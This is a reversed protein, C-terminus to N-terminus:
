RADIRYDFRLGANPRFVAARVVKEICAGLPTNSVKGGVRVDTVRGTKGVTIKLEATGSDRLRKACGNARTKVTAMTKSIDSPSLPELAPPAPAERKVAPSPTSKQVNKLMDDISRSVGKKGKGKGDAAVDAMLNDLSGSSKSATSRSPAEPKALAVARAPSKAKRGSSSGSSSGSESEFPDAAVSPKRGPGTVPASKRAAAPRAASAPRAARPRAAHAPGAPEEPQPLERVEVHPTKPGGSAAAAEMGVPAAPEEAVSPAAAVPASATAGSAGEMASAAQSEPMAVPAHPALWGFLWPVKAALKPAAGDIFSFTYDHVPPGAILGGAFVFLSLVVLWRWERKPKQPPLTMPGIAV